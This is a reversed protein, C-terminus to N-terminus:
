ESLEVTAPDIKRVDSSTDGVEYDDYEGREAKLIAEEKNAATIFFDVGNLTITGKAIFEPM